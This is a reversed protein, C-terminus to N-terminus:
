HIRSRAIFARFTGPICRQLDRYIISIIELPLARTLTGLNSGTSRCASLCERTGEILGRISAADLRAATMSSMGLTLLGGTTGQIRHREAITRSNNSICATCFYLIFGKRKKKKGKKCFIYLPTLPFVHGLKPVM